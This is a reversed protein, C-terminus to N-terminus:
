ERNGGVPPTLGIRHKLARFGPYNQMKQYFPLVALNLVQWEHAEASRELWKVTNVEDGLAAYVLAFWQRPAKVKLDNAELSRIRRLADEQHGAGAHALARGFPTWPLQEDASELLHLALEPRGQAVFNLTSIVAAGPLKGLALCGALSRKYEGAQSWFLASNMLGSFSIPDLEEARRRHLKAESFRGQYLLLFAYFSEASADPGVSLIRRLEREAQKWDWDYQLAFSALLARPAGYRPSRELAMRLYAEAEKREQEPRFAEGRIISYNMAIQGLLLYPRAYKPDIAVAKRANERAEEYAVPTSVQMEQAARLTLDHAEENIVAPTEALGSKEAKMFASVASTIESHVRAFESTSTDYVHSWLLSGDPARKLQASIKIRDEFRDLRGILVLGVHLQRNAQSLDPAKASFRKSSAGDVVRLSSGQALGETLEETLGDVLYQDHVNGKVNVFPLVALTRSETKWASFRRVGYGGLIALVVMAVVAVTQKRWRRRKWLPNGVARNPAKGELFLQLDAAFEGVSGYREEPRSQMSQRCIWELRGRVDAALKVRTTSRAAAAEETVVQEVAAPALNHVARDLGAVISGPNGFPWAGTVLEYLVVGLSYVDTAASVAEGQLQEPSAYRLTMMGFPGTASERGSQALLKATGFDLLKPVGEGTVLINGPKLDRHVIERQHAHEVASCVQLFLGIRERVTLRRENCYQDLSVGDVYEMMLYPAGDGSVGGDLLRTINVHDLDALIQRERRFRETFSEGALHPSMVKVAVKRDFHGDERYALYVSSMGGQGILRDLRYNGLRTGSLAAPALLPAASDRGEEDFAALVAQVEDFLEADGRCLQRVTGTRAPEREATVEHFVAEIRQWREATLTTM